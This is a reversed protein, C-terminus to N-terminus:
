PRRTIPALAGFPGEGRLTTLVAPLPQQVVGAPFREDPPDAHVGTGSLGPVPASRVGRGLKGRVHEDNGPHARRRAALLLGGVLQEPHQLVSLLEFRATTERMRRRYESRLDRRLGG